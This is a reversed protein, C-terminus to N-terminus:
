RRLRALYPPNTATDYQGYTKGQRQEQRRRTGSRRRRDAGGDHDVDGAALHKELGVGIDRGIRRREGLHHREIQQELRQLLARNFEILRQRNRHGRRAHWRGIEGKRGAIRDRYGRRNLRDDDM